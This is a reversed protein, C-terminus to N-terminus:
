AAFSKHSSVMSQNTSPTTPVVPAYRDWASRPSLCRGSKVAIDDGRSLTIGSQRMGNMRTGPDVGADVNSASAMGTPARMTEM